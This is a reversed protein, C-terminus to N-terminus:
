ERFFPENQYNDIRRDEEDEDANFGAEVRVDRGQEEDYENKKLPFRIRVWVGRVLFFEVIRWLVEKIREKDINM